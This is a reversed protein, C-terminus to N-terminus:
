YIILLDNILMSDLLINLSLDAIIPRRTFQASPNDERGFVKLIIYYLGTSIMFHIYFIILYRRLARFYSFFNAVKVYGSKKFKNAHKRFNGFEVLGEVALDTIM